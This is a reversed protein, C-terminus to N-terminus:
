SSTRGKWTPSPSSGSCRTSGRASRCAASLMSNNTSKLRYTRTINAGTVVKLYMDGNTKLGVYGRIVRKDHDIGFDLAGTLIFAQVVAGADTTGTLQYVGDPTTGYYQGQYETLSTPEPRVPLPQRCEHRPEAGMADLQAGTFHV